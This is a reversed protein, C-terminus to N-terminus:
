DAGPVVIRVGFRGFDRDFTAVAAGHEIALAAIHADTTLNGATGVERILGSLVVSHRSTPEVVVTSRHALWTGMVDLARRCTLASEAPRRMCRVTLARQLTRGGM